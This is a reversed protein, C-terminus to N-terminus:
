ERSHSTTRFLANRFIQHQGLGPMKDKPWSQLTAITFAFTSLYFAFTFFSLTNKM